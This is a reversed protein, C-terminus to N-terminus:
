LLRVFISNFVSDMAMFVENPMFINLSSAAPSMTLVLCKVPVLQFTDLTGFVRWYWFNAELVQGCIKLVCSPMKRNLVWKVRKVSCDLFDLCDLFYVRLPAFFPAIYDECVHRLTLTTWSTPHQFREQFAKFRPQNSRSKTRNVHIFTCALYIWIRITKSM